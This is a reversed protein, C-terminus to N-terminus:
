DEIGFWIWDNDIYLNPEQIKAGESMFSRSNRWDDVDVFQKRLYLSLNDNVMKDCYLDNLSIVYYEKEEAISTWIKIWKEKLYSILGKFPAYYLNLLRGYDKIDLKYGLSWKPDIYLCKPNENENYLNYTASVIGYETELGGGDANKQEKWEEIKNPAINKNSRGKAELLICFPAHEQDDWIFAVLDPKRGGTPLNLIERVYDYPLSFFVNDIESALYTAVWQGIKYSLWREETSETFWDTVFNLVGINNRMYLCTAIFRRDWRRIFEQSCAQNYADEITRFNHFIENRPIHLRHIYWNGGIAIHKLLALYPINVSGDVSLLESWEEDHNIIENELDWDRNGTNRYRNLFPRLRQHDKILVDFRM